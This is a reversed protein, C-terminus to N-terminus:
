KLLTNQKCSYSSHCSCSHSIINYLSKKMICESYSFIYYYSALFMYVLIVSVLYMAIVQRFNEKDKSITYSVILDSFLSLFLKKLHSVIIRILLDVKYM